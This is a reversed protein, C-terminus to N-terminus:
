IAKNGQAHLPIRTGLDNWYALLYTHTQPWWMLVLQLSIVPEQRVLFFFCCFSVFFSCYAVGSELWYLLVCYSSAYLWMIMKKLYGRLVM